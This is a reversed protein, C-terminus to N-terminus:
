NNQTNGHSFYVTNELLQNVANDMRKLLFGPYFGIWFILFVLPLLLGIERPTLDRLMRNEEKNLPGFFVRRVMWLLYVAAFIIGIGGIAAFLPGVKYTGLLILFEGVFGNTGPLGLSSLSVILFLMAFIPMSSALGGFDAIQRSHRREYIMGVLLFLAGTSIGHNVMQLTAGAIGQPTLSFIGLMVFGLHSVSSYAVLKKMDEQVMSVLAGYVIGIVSLIMFLPALREVAQPFLPLAFRVFGYTGMKLLVGALIVSGATPAEVHADPLWTHFPFLPVKVAFALAFAGFLLLQKTESLGLRYLDLLNFTKGALSYLALIAALMLLSGVMTYLVFKLAAYVRRPGGWLGILFYMPILMAEWFVYFLFLDLSAFVGLMGTQLLLFFILFQRIKKKPEEWCSLFIIPMLFTTLLVLPLSFGDLGLRYYVNFLPLWPVVEQFEFPSTGQFLALLRLSLALPILTTLFAISRQLRDNSVLSLPLIGALPSFILLSLLHNDLFNM